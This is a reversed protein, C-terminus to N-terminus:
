RPADSQPKARRSRILLGLRSTVRQPELAMRTLWRLKDALPASRFWQLVFQLSQSQILSMGSYRRRPAPHRSWRNPPVLSVMPGPFTFATWGSAFFTEWTPQSEAELIETRIACYSPLPQRADPGPSMPCPGPDLDPHRGDRLVWPAVLGVNPQLDFVREFAEVFTPQLRVDQDLLTVSRLNSTKSLLAKLGLQIALGPTMDPTYITNIAFAAIAQETQRRLQEHIVIVTEPATTQASISQLCGTLAEPSQLCTVINGM